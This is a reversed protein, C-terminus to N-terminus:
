GIYTETYSIVYCGSLNQFHVGNSNSFGRALNNLNQFIVSLIHPTVSWIVIGSVEDFERFERSKTLNRDAYLCHTSYIM